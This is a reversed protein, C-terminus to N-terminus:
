KKLSEIIKIMQQLPDKIYIGGEYKCVEEREKKLEAPFELQQKMVGELDKLQVIRKVAKSFPRVYDLYRKDGNFTRPKVIDCAVVPIDLSQALLEFTIESLTVVLDAKSLVEACEELHGSKDRHSYAIEDALNYNELEHREMIKAILKWGNKKCIPSLVTMMKLNEEIDYDWHEPCFVINIGEHKKRGILHNFITTGTVEIKKIPTKISLLKDLGDNGWVCVKDAILPYSIPPCYDDMGHRGHQVVVIPKKFRKATRATALGWAIIDQWLVVVDAEQVTKVIEFHPILDRLISNHDDIVIKTLM